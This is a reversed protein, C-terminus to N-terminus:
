HVDYWTNGIKAEGDMITIGFLKPGDIFAQKGIAAAQEAYEEPVMFDEEDHMMICPQYPIGAAELREMTLMVAASCTAKECAQLLYVLLKHFSDCYIRNGAIGPIYGDSFQKTSGYIRELKELLAKFGPVAKIFGAKLKKGKIDDIVGFIYSWLKGGSAGFLFAYLIRKASGRPVKFVIGMEALVQTLIDANRQHIDGHLLTYIFEESQLYHALGRAQNGASDCGILKWGPRCRFLARLEPGWVSDAAPVNVIISHRARMSPTGITFCEGHINGQEDCADLWGKLVAYRSKNTLFDCYLKGDGHMCELSDETIKPSTKIVGRGDPNPKTNYETPVWGNRDLFIKVDTVSDLKLDEFTIRSFPGAIYPDEDLGWDQEIGFWKATHMDYYGNKLFKPTKYEVVGLKKDIPVVKTGLLPVLKDRTTEMEKGIRELLTKGSEVDFPWGYLEAMACWKSVANEAKLYPTIGSSKERLAMYENWVVDHIKDNLHLDNEWYTIMEPTLKSFDSFDIKPFGLFQGWEDMSHRKSPFRNYNLVQSMILTDQVRQEPRPKWKFLKWLMPFDYGMLNHGIFVDVENLADKWGIDGFYWRHIQKTAKDKFGIIHARDCEKLLGNTETDLIATLM